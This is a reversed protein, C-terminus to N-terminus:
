TEYGVESLLRQLEAESGKAAAEAERLAKLADKVEVRAEPVFTDV